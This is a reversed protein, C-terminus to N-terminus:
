DLLTHIVEKKDKECLLVSIDYGHVKTRGATKEFEVVAKKQAEYSTYAYVEVEKGKWFCKYGNMIKEKLKFVYETAKFIAEVETAAEISLDKALPELIIGFIQNGEISKDVEETEIRIKPIIAEGFIIFNDEQVETQYTTSSIDFGNKSCYLKCLHALEYVNITNYTNENEYYYELYNVYLDGIKIVDVELVQSLVKKDIM